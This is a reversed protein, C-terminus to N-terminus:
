RLLSFQNGGRNQAHLMSAAAREILLTADKGDEPFRSIGISVSTASAPVPLGNPMALKQMLKEAVLVTDYIRSVDTILLLFQDSGLQAVSDCQRVAATLRTLTREILQEALATGHEHHIKQFHDLQVFMLAFGSRHREAHKLLFQLLQQMRQSTPTHCYQTLAQRQQLVMLESLAREAALEAHQLQQQLEEYSLQESAQTQSM